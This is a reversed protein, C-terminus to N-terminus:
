HVMPSLHDGACILYQVNHQECWLFKCTGHHNGGAPASCDNCEDAPELIDGLLARNTLPARDVCQVGPNMARGCVECIASM